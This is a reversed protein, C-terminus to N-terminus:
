GAEVSFREWVRHAGMLEHLRQWVEDPDDDAVLGAAGLPIGADTVAEM